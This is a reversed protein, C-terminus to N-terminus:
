DYPTADFGVYRNNKRHQFGLGPATNYYIVRRIGFPDIYGFSGTRKGGPSYQEAHYHRPLYYRFGDNGVSIADLYQGDQDYYQEPKVYQDYNDTRERGVREIVNAPSGVYGYSDDYSPTRIHYNDSRYDIANSSLPRLQRYRSLVPKTRQSEYPVLKVYAETKVHPNYRSTFVEYPVETTTVPRQTISVIKEFPAPTTGVTFDQPTTSVITSITNETATIPPLTKQTVTEINKAGKALSLSEKVSADKGVFVNKTKLIRYGKNDAIYERLRFFGNADLWGYSGIVTGDELRKEKRYQGSLTQYRFYREPGEDTQIHYQNNSADWDKAWSPYPSSITTIVQFM